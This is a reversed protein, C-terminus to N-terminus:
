KDAVKKIPADKKGSVLRDAAFSSRGPEEGYAPYAFRTPTGPLAASREDPPPPPPATDPRPLPVPDKPGGDYPSPGADPTPNPVPLIETPPRDLIYRGPSGASPDGAPPLVSLAPLISLTSPYPVATAGLVLPYYYATSSIYYVRPSAYYP